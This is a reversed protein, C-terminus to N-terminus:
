HVAGSSFNTMIMKVSGIKIHGEVKVLPRAPHDTAIWVHMEGKQQLEAGIYTQLRLKVAPFSGGPVAVTEFKVPEADLWWNKEDTYVLIREVVGLRYAKTRLRFVAGLVDSAGPQLFFEETSREKGARQVVESVVCQKHRFDLWKEREFRRGFLTGEDQRLYFKRISFDNPNSISEVSDHAVFAYRYWDGTKAEASFVRYYSGDVQVPQDVRIWAHGVKVGLYFVDFTSLEGMAFPSGRYTDALSVAPM